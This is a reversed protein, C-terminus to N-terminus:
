DEDDEQYYARGAIRYVGMPDKPRGELVESEEITLSIPCGEDHEFERVWKLAHEPTEAVVDYPVFYGKVDKHLPHKEPIKAHILIRFYQAKKSFCGDIDRVLALLKENGPFAALSDMVSTRVEDSPWGKELRLRGQNAAIRALTETDCESRPDAALCADALSLADDLEGLGWLTTIRVDATELALHEDRIMDLLGLARGYDECREALIAQNLRVSPESVKPCQLAREYADAAKEYNGMDSRYNGLLQWNVWADPAEKVGRELTAVARSLDGLGVYAQAAIEFAASYRIEELQRSIDLAAQYNGEQLLAFGEEALKEAKVRKRRGM